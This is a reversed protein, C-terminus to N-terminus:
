LIWYALWVVITAAVAIVFTLTTIVRVDPPEDKVTYVGYFHLAWILATLILATTM